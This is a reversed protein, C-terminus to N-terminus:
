LSRNSLEASPSASLFTSSNMQWITYQTTLSTHFPNKQGMKSFIRGGKSFAATPNRLKIWLTMSPMLLARLIKPAESGWDALTWTPLIISYAGSKIKVGFSVIIGANAAPLM